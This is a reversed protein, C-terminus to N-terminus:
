REEPAELADRIRALEQLAQIPTMSDPDLGRLHLSLTVARRESPSLERAPAPSTQTAPPM